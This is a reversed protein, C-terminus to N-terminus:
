YTKIAELSFINAISKLSVKQCYKKIILKSKRVYITFFFICCQCLRCVASHWPPRGHRISIVSARHDMSFCCWKKIVPLALFGFVSNSDNHRLMTPFDSVLLSSLLLLISTTSKRQGREFCILISKRPYERIKHISM